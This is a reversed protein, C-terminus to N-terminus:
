GCFRNEVKSIGDKITVYFVKNAGEILDESHSVMIIQLGLEKSLTQLMEAARGHLDRSLHKFPEDLVIVPRTSKTLSWLSIRLAFAAVDVPGGGSSFMPSHVEGGRAFLLDAETRSRRQVFAVKFEYPDSFVAALALSVLDSIEMAMQEQTAASVEQIIKQAKIVDELIQNLELLKALTDQHTQLIQSYRGKENELRNRLNQIM